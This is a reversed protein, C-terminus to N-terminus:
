IRIRFRDVLEMAIEEMPIRSLISGFVNIRYILFRKTVEIPGSKRLSLSKLGRTISDNPDPFRVPKLGIRLTGSAVDTPGHDLSALQLWGSYKYNDEKSFDLIDDITSEDLTSL